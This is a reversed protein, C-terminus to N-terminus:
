SERLLQKLQREIEKAGDKPLKKILNVVFQERNCRSNQALVKQIIIKAIPGITDILIQQCQAVFKKDIQLHKSQLLSSSNKTSDELKKVSSQRTLQEYWVQLQHTDEVLICLFSPNENMWNRCYSLAAEKRGISFIVGPIFKKQHYVKGSLSSINHAQRNFEEAPIIIM